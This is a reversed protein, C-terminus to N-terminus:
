TNEKEVIYTAYEDAWHLFLALENEEFANSLYYKDSEIWPGMHFRIAQAEYDKLDFYKSIIYVSKEGHGFAFNEQNEYRLEETWIFQGLSDKKLSRKDKVKLIEENTLYKKKNWYSQKYTGIKCVDHLLSVIAISDISYNSAHKTKYYLDVLAFYVNLSHELLGGEYSCHKRASAPDVFFSTTELYDLFDTFDARYDLIKSEVIDYFLEKNTM